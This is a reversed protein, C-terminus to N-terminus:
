TDGRGTGTPKTLLNSTSHFLFFLWCQPEPKLLQSFNTKTSFQPFPALPSTGPFCKAKPDYCTLFASRITIFTAKLM